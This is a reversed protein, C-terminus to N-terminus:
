ADIGGKFIVENVMLPPESKAESKVTTLDMKYTMGNMGCKLIVVWGDATPAFTEIKILTTKLLLRCLITPLYHRITPNM